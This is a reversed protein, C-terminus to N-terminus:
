ITKVGFLQYKNEKMNLKRVNLYDSPIRMDGMFILYVLLADVFGGM